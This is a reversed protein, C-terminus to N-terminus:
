ARRWVTYDSWVIARASLYPLYLVRSWLPSEAADVFPESRWLTWRDRRHPAAAAAGGEGQELHVLWDCADEDVYRFPACRGYPAPPRSPRRIHAHRSRM